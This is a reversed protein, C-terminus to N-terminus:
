HLGEASKSSPVEPREVRLVKELEVCGAIDTKMYRLEVPLKM